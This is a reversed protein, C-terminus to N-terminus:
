QLRAIEQTPECQGLHCISMTYELNDDQIQKLLLKRSPRGYSAYPPVEVGAWGIAEVIRKLKSAVICSHLQLTPMGFIFDQLGPPDLLVQVRGERMAMAFKQWQSYTFALTNVDRERPWLQLLAPLDRDLVFAMLRYDSSVLGNPIIYKKYFRELLDWHSFHLLEAAIREWGDSDALHLTSM